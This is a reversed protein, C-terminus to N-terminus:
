WRSELGNELDEKRVWVAESIPKTSFRTTQLKNADDAPTSPSQQHEVIRLTHRIDTRGTTWSAAVVRTIGKPMELRARHSTLELTIIGRGTGAPASRLMPVVRKAPTSISATKM